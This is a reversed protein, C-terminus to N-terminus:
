PGHDLHTRVLHQALFDRGHLNDGDVIISIQLLFLCGHVHVLLSVRDPVRHPGQIWQHM